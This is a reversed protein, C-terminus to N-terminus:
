ASQRLDLLRYGVLRLADSREPYEEIVSSLVRVAGDSDGADLRRRAEVLYPAVNRRDKDREALYGPPVDAKHLIAGRVGAPPLEFDDERLAALLKQVHPANWGTLLNARGEVQKLVHGFAEKATVARGLRTFAALVFGGLDGAVVKGREDELNFRKYDA